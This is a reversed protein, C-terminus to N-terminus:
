ILVEKKESEFLINSILVLDCSNDPLGSGKPEELNAWRTEVINFLGELKARFELAELSPKWIDLAIVRGSPRLAKAMALTFYGTGSGFDAITMGEKLPFTKVVEQPNLFSVM